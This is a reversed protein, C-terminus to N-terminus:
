ENSISRKVELLYPNDFVLNLGPTIIDIEKSLHYIKVDGNLDVFFKLDEEDLDDLIENENKGADYKLIAETLLSELKTKNYLINGVDIIGLVLILFVPLIIVFEVLAQGKKNM